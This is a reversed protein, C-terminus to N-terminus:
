FFNCIESSKHFAKFKVFVALLALKKGGDNVCKVVDGRLEAIKFLIEAIQVIINFLKVFVKCVKFLKDIIIVTIAAAAAVIVAIAAAAIIVVVADLNGARSAVLFNANVDVINIVVAVNFAGAAAFNKFKFDLVVVAVLVFFLGSKESPATANLASCFSFHQFAFNYPQM